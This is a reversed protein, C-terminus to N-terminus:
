CRRRRSPCSMPAPSRGAPRRQLSQVRPRRRLRERGKTRHVVVPVVFWRARSPARMQFGEWEGEKSTSSASSVNALRGRLCFAGPVRGLPPEEISRQRALSSAGTAQGNAESRSESKYRGGEGVRGHDPIVIDAGVLPPGAVPQPPEGANASLRTALADASLTMATTETHSPLLACTSSPRM